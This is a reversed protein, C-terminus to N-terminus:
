QVAITLLERIKDESKDGTATKALFGNHHVFHMKAADLRRFDVRPHDAHRYLVVRNECGDDRDDITISGAAGLETMHMAMVAPLLPGCERYDCFIEDKVQMLYAKNAEGLQEAFDEWYGLLGRGIARMPWYLREDLDVFSVKSFEQLLQSEIPSITAFLSTPPMNFKAATAYPGECDLATKFKLWPSAADAIESLSFYDLVLNFACKGETGEVGHHDLNRLLPQHEGGVDVVWIEPNDLDARTPEERRITDIENLGLLLCLAIFEDAHAQGAHTIATRM